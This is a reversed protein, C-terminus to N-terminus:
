FLDMTHKQRFKEYAIDIVYPVLLGGIFMLIVVLWYNMCMKRYCIVRIPIAIFYGMLYIAFSRRGIDELLDNRILQSLSIAMVIGIMGEILVPVNNQTSVFYTPLSACAIVKHDLGRIKLYMNKCAVGLMFYVMFNMVNHMFYTEKQMWILHCCVGLLLAIWDDSIFRVLLIFILSMVFLSWLYWMGGMPSEGLLIRWASQLSYGHNAESAFMQKLILGVLSLAFYPILLRCARKKIYPLPKDRSHKASLLGAIFFFVPMHFGYVFSHIFNALGNTIGYDADPFSHGLVVAIIAIGKAIDLETLKKTNDM